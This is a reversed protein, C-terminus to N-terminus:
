EECDKNEDIDYNNKESVEIIKNKSMKFSISFMDKDKVNEKYNCAIYISGNERYAYVEIDDKDYTVEYDNSIYKENKIKEVIKNSLESESDSINNKIVDKISNEFKINNIYSKELIYDSEMTYILTNWGLMILFAIVFPILVCYAFWSEGEIMSYIGYIESALFVIGLLMILGLIVM